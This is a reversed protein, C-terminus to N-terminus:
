RAPPTVRVAVAEIQKQGHSGTAVPGAASVRDGRSPLSRPRLGRRVDIVSIGPATVSESSVLVFHADGDGDPDVAEVYLVRGSATRCTPAGTPCRADPAPAPAAETAPKAAETAPRPAPKPSPSSDEGCSAAGLATLAILVCVRAM